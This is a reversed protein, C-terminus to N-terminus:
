EDETQPDVASSNKEARLDDFMAMYYIHQLKLRMKCVFQCDKISDSKSDIDEILELVDIYGVNKFEPASKTQKSKYGELERYM